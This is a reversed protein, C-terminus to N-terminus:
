TKQRPNQTYNDRGHMSSAEDEMIQNNLIQQKIYKIVKFDLKQGVSKMIDKQYSM